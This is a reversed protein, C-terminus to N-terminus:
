HIAKKMTSGQSSEIHSVVYYHQEKGLVAEKAGEVPCDRYHYSLWIVGLVLWVMEVMM